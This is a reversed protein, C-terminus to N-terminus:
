GYIERLKNTINKAVGTQVPSQIETLPIGTKETFYNADMQLGGQKIKIALDAVNHANEVEENDNQMCAVTGEPINFGLNRM